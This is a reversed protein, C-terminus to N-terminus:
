HLKAQLFPVYEQSKIEQVEEELVKIRSEWEGIRVEAASFKTHLTEMSELIADETKAASIEDQTLSVVSSSKKKRAKRLPLPKKRNRTRM